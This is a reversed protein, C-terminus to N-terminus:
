NFNVVVRRIEVFYLLKSGINRNKEERSVLLYHFFM